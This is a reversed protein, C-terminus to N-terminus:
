LGEFLNDKTLNETPNISMGEFKIWEKFEKPLSKKSLKSIANVAEESLLGKPYKGTVNHYKKIQYNIRPVVLDIITSTASKIQEPSSSTRLEKLWSEEEQVALSGAGRLAKALETAVAKSSITAKAIKGQGLQRQAANKGANAIIVKGNDIEKMAEDFMSIHNTILDLSQQTQAYAPSSDWKKLFSSRRDYEKMDWSPNLKKILADFKARDGSNSRMGYISKADLEYNAAANVNYAVDPPLSALFDEKNTENVDKPLSNFDVSSISTTNKNTDVGMMQQAMDMQQKQMEAQNNKFGTYFPQGTIGQGFAMMADSVGSLIPHKVKQNMKYSDIFAAVKAAHNAGELSGKQVANQFESAYDRIPM